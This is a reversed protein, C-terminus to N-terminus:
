MVIMRAHHSPPAPLLDREATVGEGLRVRNESPQGAVRPKCWGVGGPQQLCAEGRREDQAPRKRTLQRVREAAQADCATGNHGHNKIAAARIKTASTANRRISKSKSNPRLLGGSFITHALLYGNHLYHRVM